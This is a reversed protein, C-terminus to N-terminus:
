HYWPLLSSKKLSFPFFFLTVETNLFPPLSVARTKGKEWYPLPPTLQSSICRIIFVTNDQSQFCAQSMILSLGVVTLAPESDESFAHEQRVILNQKFYLKKLSICWRSFVKSSELQTRIWSPIGRQASQPPPSLFWSDRAVTTPKQSTLCDFFVYVPCTWTDTRSSESKCKLVPRM